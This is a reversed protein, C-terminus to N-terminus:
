RFERASREFSSPVCSGEMMWFGLDCSGVIVFVEVMVREVWGMEDRWLLVRV